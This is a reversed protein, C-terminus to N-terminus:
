AEEMGLRQWGSHNQVMQIWGTSVSLFLFFVPKKFAKGQLYYVCQIFHQQPIPYEHKKLADNWLKIMLLNCHKVISLGLPNWRLWNFLNSIVLQLVFSVYSEQRFNEGSDPFFDSLGLKHSM